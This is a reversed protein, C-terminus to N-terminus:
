RNAHVENIGRIRVKHKPTWIVAERPIPNRGPVALGNLCRHGPLLSQIAKTEFLMLSKSMISIMLQKDVM